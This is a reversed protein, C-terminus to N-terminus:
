TSVGLFGAGEKLVSRSSVVIGIIIVIIGVVNNRTPYAKRLMLIIPVIVINMAALSSVTPAPLEGLAMKEFLMNGTILVSLIAAHKITQKTLSSMLRFFIIALIIGAVGSTLALYAYIM